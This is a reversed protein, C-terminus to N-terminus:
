KNKDAYYPQGYEVYEKTMCYFRYWASRLCKIGSEGLIRAVRSPHVGELDAINQDIWHFDIKTKILNLLDLKAKRAVEIPHNIFSEGNYFEYNDGTPVAELTNMISDVKDMLEEYSVCELETDFISNDKAKYKIIRQM